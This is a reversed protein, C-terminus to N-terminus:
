STEPAPQRSHLPIIEGFGAGANSSLQNAPIHQSLKAKSTRGQLEPEHTGALHSHQHAPHWHQQTGQPLHKSVSSLTPLAPHAAEKDTSHSTLSGKIQVM